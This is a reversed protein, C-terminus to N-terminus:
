ARAGFAKSEALMEKVKAFNEKAQEPSIQKHEIALAKHNSELMAVAQAPTLLKAAHEASIRGLRVATNLAAERGEKSDGLSPFWKLPVGDRKNADVIRAYADKFAMRAAVQDGEDLLPKAIGWAEVMEETMVVSAYEDRPIMAWAEDAGPRSDPCNAEIADIINAPVPPFKSEKSSVFRNFGGRVQDIDYRSLVAWWLKLVAEGAEVRYVSLTARVIEAFEKKDADLM